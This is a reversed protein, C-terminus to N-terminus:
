LMHTKEVRFIEAESPIHLITPMLGDALAQELHSLGQELTLLRGLEPPIGKVAPGLHLCGLSRSHEKCNFATRCPCAAMAFIEDAARLLRAVLEGPLIYQGGLPISEGVPIFWNADTDPPIFAKQLRPGVLPLRMLLLGPKLTRYFSMVQRWAPSRELARKSDLDRTM